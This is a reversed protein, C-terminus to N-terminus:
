TKIESRSNGEHIYYFSQKEFMNSYLGKQGILEEHNGQEVMVGDNLVFIKDCFRTSMLRHSIFVVLKNAFADNVLQYLKYESLADLAATPEDLIVCDCEKYLARAIAVKQMEGGSLEFGNDDFLKTMQTNERHPMKNVCEELNMKDIVSFLKEKDINDIAINEKFTYAYLYIDQLVTSFLNYISSADIQKINIDNIYIEGDYKTYFKLLLSIITSKGAGNTGVIGIKEGKIIEFSVNSLAKKENGPYSFSVNSFRISNLKTIELNEKLEQEDENFSMECYERFTNISINQSYIHSITNFISLLVGTLSAIASICLIYDAITIQKALVLCILVVYVFFNLILELFSNVQASFFNNNYVRHRKNIRQMIIDSIKEDVKKQYNYLLIDKLANKNFLLNLWYDYKRNLPNVEDNLADERKAFYKSLLFKM